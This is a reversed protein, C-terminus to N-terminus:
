CRTNTGSTMNALGMEADDAGASHTRMVSDNNAGRNAAMRSDDVLKRDNEKCSHEHHPNHTVRQGLLSAVLGHYHRLLPLLTM